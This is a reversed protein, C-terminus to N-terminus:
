SKYAKFVNYQWFGLSFVLEEYRSGFVQDFNERKKETFGTLPDGM